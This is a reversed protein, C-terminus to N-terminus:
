RRIRSRVCCLGVIAALVLMSPEPIEILRINDVSVTSDRWFTNNLDYDPGELNTGLAILLNDGASAEFASTTVLTSPVAVGATAPLGGIGTGSDSEVLIPLDSPNLGRHAGNVVAGLQYLTIDSTPTANIAIEAEVQFKGSVPVVSEYINYVGNTFGGDAISLFGGGDSPTGFADNTIDYWTGFVGAGEPHNVATVGGSFDDIVTMTLAHASGVLVCGSILASFIAAHRHM